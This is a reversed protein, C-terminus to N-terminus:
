ADPEAVDTIVGLQNVRYLRDECRVHLYRGDATLWGYCATGDGHYVQTHREAVTQIIGTANEFALKQQGLRFGGLAALVVLVATTIVVSRPM